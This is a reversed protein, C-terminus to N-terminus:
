PTPLPGQPQRHGSFKQESACVPCDPAMNGASPQYLVRGEFGNGRLTADLSGNISYTCAGARRTNRNFLTARIRNGTVTGVFDKSGYGLMLLGGWWGEVSVTINAGSQTIALPINQAGDGEKWSTDACSNAGNVVSVSYAGAVNATDHGVSGENDCAFGIPVVLSVFLSLPIFRRM